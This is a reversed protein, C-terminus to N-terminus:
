RSGPEIIGAREAEVLNVVEAIGDKGIIIVWGVGDDCRATWTPRGQLLGQYASSVVGQCDRKADRLARIFVADRQGEPMTQLRAQYDGEPVEIKKVGEAPKGSDCGAPIALAAIACGTLWLRKM